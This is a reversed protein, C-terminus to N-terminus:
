DGLREFHLYTTKQYSIATYASDSESDIELTFTDNAAIDMIATITHHKYGASGSEIAYLIETSNKDITFIFYGTNTSDLRSSAHILYRGANGVTVTGSSVTISGSSTDNTLATLNIVTPLTSTISQDTALYARAGYTGGAAAAEFAPPTTSGTSTLVQGDTGPGVAAPNGSADYTIIQGDTGSAMKALTVANDALNAEVIGSGSITIAM